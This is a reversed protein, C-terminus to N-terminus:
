SELIATVSAELDDFSTIGEWFARLSGNRDYVFTAPLAGSWESHFSSIFEFDVGSKIYSEWPVEHEELFDIVEPRDPEYDTSVFVVDVGKGEFEKGFRVFDPFEIRCPMCWTAWFNVIVVQGKRSSIENVLDDYTVSEPM